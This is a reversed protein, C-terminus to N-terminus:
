FPGTTTPTSFADVLELQFSLESPSPPPNANRLSIALDTLEIPKKFARLRRSVMKTENLWASLEWAAGETLESPTVIVIRARVVAETSDVVFQQTVRHYDGIVVNAYALLAHGLEYVHSNGDVTIRGQHVGLDRTFATM